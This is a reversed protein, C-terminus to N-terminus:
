ANPNPYSVGQSAPSGEYTQYVGEKQALECSAELAAYYITEFIQKNLKAAEPSEFPYRLLAYFVISNHFYRIRSIM